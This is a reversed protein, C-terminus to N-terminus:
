NGILSSARGLNVKNTLPGNNIVIKRDDVKVIQQRGFRVQSMKFRQWGVPRAVIATIFFNQRSFDFDTAIGVRRNNAVIKKHPIRYNIVLTKHLVPLDKPDTLDEPGDVLIRQSTFHRLSAPLILLDKYRKTPRAWIAVVKLQSPDVLLGSIQGIQGNLQISVIPVGIMEKAIYIM